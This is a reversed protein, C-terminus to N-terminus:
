NAVAGAPTTQGGMKTMDDIMQVFREPGLVLLASLARNRGLNFPVDGSRIPIGPVKIPLPVSIPTFPIKFYVRPRIGGSKGFDPFKRDRAGSPEVRLKDVFADADEKGFALKLDDYFGERNASTAQRQLESWDIAGGADTLNPTRFMQTLVRAARYQQRQKLWDDALKDGVKQRLSDAADHEAQFVSSRLAKGLEAKEPDPNGILAWGKNETENLHSILDNWEFGWKTRRALGLREAMPGPLEIELKPSAKKEMGPSQYTSPRVGAAEREAGLRQSEKVAAQLDIPGQKGSAKAGKTAMRADEQAQKLRARIETLTDEKAKNEASMGSGKKAQAAKLEAQIDRVKQYEAQPDAKKPSFVTSKPTEAKPVWEGFADKVLGESGRPKQTTGNAFITPKREAALAAEQETDMATPSLVTAKPASASAGLQRTIQTEVKGLKESATDELEGRLFLKRFDASNRLGPFDPLKESLWNGLGRLDTKQIAKNAFGFLGRTLASTGEAFLQEGTGRLVGEGTKGETAGGIGGGGATIVTRAALRGLGRAGAPLERLAKYAIGGAGEVEGAGTLMSLAMAADIGAQINDGPLAHVLLAIPDMAGRMNGAADQLGGLGKEAGAKVRGALDPQETSAGDPKKPEGGLTTDPAKTLPGTPAPLDGAGGDRKIPEAPTIDTPGIEKHVGHAEYFKDRVMNDADLQAGPDTLKRYQTSQHFSKLAEDATKFGTLNPM